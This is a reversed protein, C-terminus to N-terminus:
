ATALRFYRLRKALAIKKSGPQNLASLVRGIPTVYGTLGDRTASCLLGIAGGAMDLYLSGSDGPCATSEASSFKLQGRYLVGTAATKPAVMGLGKPLPTSVFLDYDVAALKATNTTGSTRGSKQAVLTGIDAKGVKRIGKPAGIKVIASVIPKARMAKPFRKPDLKVVAADVDIVSIDVKGKAGKPAFGLAQAKAAGMTISARPPYPTNREVGGVVRSRFDGPGSQLVKVAKAGPRNPLVVHACTLFFFEPDKPPTEAPVVFEDKVAAGFGGGFLAGLPMKAGGVDILRAGITGPLIKVTKGGVTATAGTSYGPEIPRVRSVYTGNYTKAGLTTKMDCAGQVVPEAEVVSTAVVTDAIAEGLADHAPLYAPIAPATRLLKKKPRALIAIEVVPLTRDSAERLAVGIGAVLPHALLFSDAFHRKTSLVIDFDDTISLDGAGDAIEIAKSQRAQAM